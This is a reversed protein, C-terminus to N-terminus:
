FITTGFFSYFRYRLSLFGTGYSETQGPTITGGDSDEWSVVIVFDAVFSPIHCKLIATNGRLVYEDMVNVEYKQTVVSFLCILWLINCIPVAVWFRFPFEVQFLDFFRKLIISRTGYEIGQPEKIYSV